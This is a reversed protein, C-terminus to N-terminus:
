TDEQTVSFVEELSTDGSLIKRLGDDLLTTMGQSVAKKKLTGSDTNQLVLQRIDENVLLLEYLGFRGRYGTKTANQAGRRVFRKSDPTRKPLWM